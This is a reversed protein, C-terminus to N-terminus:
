SQRQRSLWLHARARSLPELWIPSLDPVLGLDRQRAASLAAWERASLGGPDPMVLCRLRHLRTRDASWVLDWRLGALRIRWGAALAPGLAAGAESRLLSAPCRRTTLHLFGDGLRQLTAPRAAVPLPSQDSM